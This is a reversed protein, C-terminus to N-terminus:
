FCSYQASYLIKMLRYLSSVMGDFRFNFTCFTGGSLGAANLLNESLLGESILGAILVVASLVVTSLLGASLVSASLLDESLLDERLLGVSLVGASDLCVEITNDSQVIRIAILRTAVLECLLKCGPSTFVVIIDFCERVVLEPWQRSWSSRFDCTGDNVAQVIM